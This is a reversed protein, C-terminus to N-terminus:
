LPMEEGINGIILGRNSVIKQWRKYDSQTIKLTNEIKPISMGARRHHKWERLKTIWGRVTEPSAPTGRFKTPSLAIGHKKAYASLIHERMNMKRAAGTAGHELRLSNWKNVAKIEESDSM